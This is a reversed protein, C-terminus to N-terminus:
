MEDVIKNFGESPRMANETKTEDPLYYGGIDM